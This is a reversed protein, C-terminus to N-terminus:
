NVLSKGTIARILYKLPIEILIILIISIIFNSIFLPITTSLVNRVNLYIDIYNSCHFYGLVFNSSSLFTLSVRDFVRFFKSGIIKNLLSYENRLLIMLLIISFIISSILGDYIYIFNIFFDKSKLFDEPEDYYILVLLNFDLSVIIYLVLSIILIINKVKGKKQSFYLMIKYDLFFPMYIDKKANIIKENYENYTESYNIYYYYMVGINFGIFYFLLFIHPYRTLYINGFIDSIKFPEDNNIPVFIFLFVAMFGFFLFYIYEIIVKKFKLCIIVLIFLIIYSYFESVLYFVFTNCTYEYEPKYLNIPNLISITDNTCSYNFYTDGIFEFHISNKVSM